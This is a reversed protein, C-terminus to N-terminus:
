RQAIRLWLLLRRCVTRRPRAAYAMSKDHRRKIIEVRAVGVDIQHHAHTILSYVENLSADTDSISAFHM